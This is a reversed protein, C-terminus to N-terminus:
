PACPLDGFESRLRPHPLDPPTAALPAGPRSLDGPRSLCRHVLAVLVRTDFPKGLVAVVAARGLCLQEPLATVVLVPTWASSRRVAAIVALGGMAGMSWDTIVLDFPTRDARGIQSIAVAADYAVTCGLGEHDLVEVLNDALDRNDDVILVRM